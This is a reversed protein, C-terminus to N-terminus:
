PTSFLYFRQPFNTATADIITFPSVTISGNSLLLWTSAIPGLAVNTSAWLKYGTGMAGTATLSVNGDPLMWIGGPPFNPPTTSPGSAVWIRGDTALTNTFTYGDPYVINAFDSVAYNTAAFLQFSDGARLASGGVNTVVLTGGYTLTNVGAVLDSTLVPGNRGVEMVVTGQLALDSHITLTGVSAGPALTGDPTITVPGAISGTGALTGGYITVPHTPSTFIGNLVLTGNSVVTPGGMPSSATLTWAGAGTKVLAMNGSLSGRVEGDAAGQLALWRPASAATTVGKTLVLRGSDSQLSIVNGGTTLTPDVPPNLVNTGSVNLYHPPFSAPYNRSYFALANNLTIGGTLEVHSLDFQAGGVTITGAGLAGSNLPRAIVAGRVTVNGAGTIENTVVFADSRYFTLTGNNIIPSPTNGLSGVTGGDGINLTGGSITTTGSYINDGSLTLTGAGAKTLIGTHSPANELAQAITVDKGSGVDLTAGNATLYAATMNSIYTTSAAAPHLTGGDFTITATSGSGRVTPLAPLTVEATGGITITATDGIGASLATFSNNTFTGGTLTLTAKGGSNANASGMALTNVVASGGTQQFLGTTNNAASDRRAIILAGNTLNLNGTGSLNFVGSCGANVGLIVGRNGSGFGTISGGSMNYVGINKIDSTVIGVSGVLIASGGTFSLDGGTHNVIGNTGVGATGASVTFSSAGLAFSGQQLNLTALAADTGVTIPGSGVTRNGSLTLTGNSVTTAGSYINAGSLTLTGEGVKTLGGTNALVGALTLTAGSAVGVTGASSLSLNNTLLSSVSNSLTGGSLTVPGSGLASNNNAELTGAGITTGGGYTNANAISLTGAGSKALVGTGAIAGAGSLRYPTTENNFAMGGPSVTLNLTIDPNGALTDDFLVATGSAYNAATATAIWQWNTTTSDWAGSTAGTWKLSDTVVLDISTASYQLTSGPPKSGLVFGSNVTPGSYTLLSYTGAPVYGSSRVNLTTTGSNAFAGTVSVTTVSGGNLTLNITQTDGGTAGLTLSGLTLYGVGALDGAALTGGSHVTVAGNVAGNGALTAGPQVVAGGALSGSVRLTGNSITTLGTYTNYGSLTLTGVGAKTLVGTQSPANEFPQAIAIDKGGAVNFNAGNATLYAHNLGSLYAASAAAPRLTGGDFTLTATSGVGRATPFAPLTVDATGGILITATDNTGVSLKTFSSNTFTGGTLMLKARGGSNLNRSGLTLTGVTATGGTQYFAGSSNDAASDSRALLLAGSSLNLNGTGSLNFIGSCNANVGLIVGRTASAFGTFFSGGSLNYVGVAGAGTGNGVLMGNGGTFSLAGASHNVIANTGAASTGVIFNNAGIALSGAQLNLTALNADAGVTIAGSAATRNGSLTLTGARVTTAGSYTNAGSLTLTGAGTKTVAVSAAGGNTLVDSIVINGAGGITLTKAGATGGTGGGIRGALTLTNASDNTLTYSAATATGLTIAANFLQHNAVTGTMQIAGSDNLTLTQSGAAGSGITYAAVSATNFLNTKITVGSGLDITTNGNGAGNFIASNGTDPVGGTWNGATAWVANSAGTWTGDAALATGTLVNTANGGNSTFLLTTTFSGPQTPSFTVQVAGTQGVSLTFPSGSVVSFPPTSTATGILPLGGENVVQFTQTSSQGVLLTGFSWNTPSVVLLPLLNTVVMYGPKSNTSNGLPGSAVLTVTNTGAIAYAHSITTGITNTTPAGDGFNWSRNTITGTSTDTFTVTLPVSGSTPSASFLAAPVVAAQGTLLVNTSGGNASSFLLNTSFAGEGTPALRVVVNTTGFGAVTFNSGSVVSFPPSASATGGTVTAGGKNTVVFTRDVNSGVAVWGFDWNTPTVALQGQTQGVGSVAVNTNGGSSTFAVNANFTGGGPPTFRVVVNTWGFGALSFTNGSMIIFPTGVAAEGNSLPAGGRNTVVFTREAYSGFLVTGFNTTAPSVGLQPPAHMERVVVTFWNTASLPPVGDDLVRTIFANTGPGQHELPLWTIVGDPSIAANTPAVLLTYSLRNAPLDADTATNTVTLPTLEDMALDPPEPLVPAQNVERVFVSFSQTATLSPVGNDTVWISIRNTSPGQAERIPWLFVGDTPHISAGAPSEAGLGFTFNTVMVDPDTVINTLTLTTGEDVLYDPVPALAPPHNVAAINLAFSSSATNTGDSVSLTILTTGFQNTAPLIVVTRNSGSGGFVFNGGPVLNTNASSGAVSLAAAPTEADSITFPIAATPTDGTGFQDPVASISPPANYDRYTVISVGGPYPSKTDDGSEILLRRTTRGQPANAFDISVIVIQAAGPAVNFPAQPAWSIWPANTEAAISILALPVSGDNYIQFTFNSSALSEIGRGLNLRPKTIAAKTDTILDGTATLKSRVEAPTLYRGLMTKAASQLCAVAGAGYPCAASTGGFSSTYDSGSYGGLGAIDTTYAQNGPALIDLFSAINCYSTVKDPATFDAGYYGSTCGPDPIKPACSAASLCPYYNGFAADYVAGVSIVNGICAPWSLAGCYGDNGSSALITIGAAVANSAARTMALNAGDCIASYDGSGFSTSIVMLPCEPNDNKHTVCWDWAAVMADSTATNTGNASIKLAYLRAAPAVGGIYDGVTGMDGAAIGACATGHAEGVPMPDADLNGFDYGGIVKANPFAGGGLRPHRYDIGTDCIAIAVGNGKYASRYAMGNILPLGQALHAQLVVVPEILAVQAHHRLKELGKRTLDCSFAAQNELRYRLSYDNQDLEQFMGEQHSKIADRLTKRAAANGWDKPQAMQVTPVLNVLVRVHEKGGKFEAEIRSADFDRRALMAPDLSGTAPVILSDGMATSDALGALASGGGSHNTFSLSLPAVRIDPYGLVLITKTYENDTENSEGVTGQTDAVLRLTHPGPSLNGLSWDQQSRTENANVPTVIDWTQDLGGDLYLGVKFANTIKAAGQNAIAWSVYYYDRGSMTRSDHTSGPATTVVIKDSWGPPQAPALNVAGLVTITRTYENDTENSEAVLNQPDAKLTLTHTGPSLSGIAYDNRYSYYGWKLGSSSWVKRLIGDVYLEYDFTTGIGDLGDNSVAWDVYLLNTAYLSASDTTTNTTTSVVIKDSWGSPLYPRLNPWGVRTVVVTKVYSNDTEDSEPLMGTVDMELRLKNTGSVLTGLKYDKVWTYGGAEVGAVQYWKQVFVDNVYLSFYFPLGAAVSGNNGAAWNLFVDNTSYLPSTDTTANTVTSLVIEDSWGPPQYATLNPLGPTFAAHLTLTGAGDDYGGALIFCPEEPLVSIVVRSSYLNTHDDNCFIPVLANCSGSYLALATNYTSGDTDVVLQGNTPATFRYWVGKSFSPNCTPIPDGDSSASLTSQVNTYPTANIVLANNCLDNAVPLAGPTFQAHFALNGSKGAWGGGLVYYSRGATVVQAMRSNNSLNTTWTTIDDNCGELVLNNCGGTYIAIATDFDSGATDLQLLGNTTATWQYWVGKGFTSVCSPTPDGPSTAAVTAQTNAYPFSAMVLANGCFDNVPAPTFAGRLVLTGSVGNSGGALIYYTTGTVVDNTLRSTNLVGDQDNCALYTLNGCAGSYLGLVTDFSSGATDMVLQGNSPPTFQYWVGKGLSRGCLSTPEGTSTAAATSQTNTYPWANIALAGYCFDNPVSTPSAWAAHVTLNGAAGDFGGALIYYTTGANVVNTLRSTTLGGDDDNCNLYTPNGCTGSYLGLITDFGSGSTDIVLLGNTSPTFQYWVGKGFNYGCPAVPDGNTTATTTSQVNVYPLSAIVFANSCYDNFDNDQLTLVANSRAGLVAGGAPNRLALLVTEDGEILSDDILPITFTKTGSDNNAWTLTNTTATYDAGATAIGDSTSCTVSAIGRAGAMRVVSLTAAGAGESVSFAPSGFQLVGASPCSELVVDDVNFNALGGGAGVYEFLIAHPGGDAFASLDLSRTAYSAEAVAPETYTAVVTGDVKIRLVDTYPASVAGVWLGFRLTAAANPIIVTQGLTATEPAYSGGFWAWRTGSRPGAAGGGDGCSGDCLPTGFWTSTQIAWGAWPSGSEFDSDTVQNLCNSSPPTVTIALRALNNSLAPDLQGAAVTVTNTVRGATTPTLVLGAAAVGNSPLTTVNWTFLNSNVTWVGQTCTVSAFVLSGPLVDSVVVNTAMRPGRNTLLLTCTLNSWAAVPNPAATMGVALDAVPMVTVLFERVMTDQGAMATGGSDQVVVSLTATGTQNAVPTLVLVGNSAPNAYTVVPDPILGPNSSTASVGLSQLENTSGSSIGTLNITKPGSNEAVTLDGLPDLTPQINGANVRVSFTKTDSLPPNGDDRVTVTVLHDGFDNTAVLRSANTMWGSFAVTLVNDDGPVGNQNDPDSYVPNIQITGPARVTVGPLYQLVPAHNRNAVTVTWQRKVESVGSRVSFEVQYDKSLTTQGSSESTTVFQWSTNTSKTVGDQKWSYTMPDHNANTATASFQVSEEELLFVSNGAPSYSAIEPPAPPRSSALIPNSGGLYEQLNTFLDGDPDGAAGHIGVASNPNLGYAVEWGDPLGDHDSDADNPDTHTVTLEIEDALKDGDSDVFEDYGIDQTKTLGAGPGAAPRPESDGDEQVYSLNEGADILPSTSTLHFNTQGVNYFGSTTSLSKADLGSNTQWVSLSLYSMNSWVGVRAVYTAYLNNHDSVTGAQSTASLYLAHANWDFAECINNKITCNTSGYGLYVQGCALNYSYYNNLMQAYNRYLTNNAVICGPSSQVSVGYGIALGPQESVSPDWARGCNNFVLNNKAISNTCFQLMIGGGNGTGLVASSNTGALGGQGQNNYAENKFVTLTSEGQGYIGVGWGLGGNRQESYGGTGANGYVINREITSNTTQLLAIGFAQGKSSFGATSTVGYAFNSYCVNDNVQNEAALVTNTVTQIFIGAGEGYGPQATPSPAAGGSGGNAYCRNSQVLNGFTSTLIIGFGRGAGGNGSGTGAGGAAGNHHCLNNEILHAGEGGVEIGAGSAEQGAAGAVGNSYCQNNRIICAFCNLAYIGQRGGTLQLNQVVIGEAGNIYICAISSGPNQHALIAAGGNTPGTFTVPKFFYGDDAATIAIDSTIPYNGTDIFVMDGPQLPYHDIIDQVRNVPNTPSMGTVTAGNWPQGAATCYNDGATSADNVYYKGGNLVKFIATVPMVFDADGPRVFRLQVSDSVLWGTNWVYSQSAGPVTAISTWSVGDVSYQLTVNTNTGWNGQWKWTITVADKLTETGRPALPIISAKGGGATGTYRSAVLRNLGDYEYAFRVTGNHTINTLNGRADYGYATVVGTPETVQSIQGKANYAYLTTRRAGVDGKTTSTLQNKANYGNAVTGARTTLNTLNDRDDYAYDVQHGLANRTRTLRSFADYTSDTQYGRADRTWIRNGNADYGFTNTHANADMVVTLNGNTDYQYSTFDVAYTSMLFRNLIHEADFSNFFNTNNPSHFTYTPNNNIDVLRIDARGNPNLTALRTGRYDYYYQKIRGDAQRETTVDRTSNYTRETTNSRADTIRTPDSKENFETTQTLSEPGTVQTRRTTLNFDKTIPTAVGPQTTAQARGYVDYAQTEVANGNEDRVETLLHDANYDYRLWRGNPADYQASVLNGNVDYGYAISHGAPLSASAVRNQGDYNFTIGRGGPQGISALRSSGDYGYVIRNGNLDQSQLLRGNMDFDHLEGNAMRMVMRTKSDTFLKGPVDKTEYAYTLIQANTAFRSMIHLVDNTRYMNYIGAPALKFSSQSARDDLYIEGYGVQNTGCLNFPVLGGKPELAYPQVQWGYGFMTKGVNFSDFHRGLVLPITGQVELSVDTDSHSFGGDKETRDVSFATVNYNTGSQNFNWALNTEAARNSKAATALASPNGNTGFELDKCYNVGGQVTLTYTTRGSTQTGTVSTQPTHTPTVVPTPEYSELFSKDMPIDNDQIWKVIGVVAALQKLEKFIYRVGGTADYTFQEAAIADYNETFWRCFYTDGPMSELVGDSAWDVQTSLQMEARTLTMSKGDGSPEVEITKPEFWKRGKASRSSNGDLQFTRPIIPMYSYGFGSVASTRAAGTINDKGLDLCKMVRDAEFMVWGFGTGSTLDNVVEVGNTDMVKPGFRTTYCLQNGWEPAAVVPDEISVVPMSGRNAARFAVALDDLNLPPLATAGGEAKGYLLIQGTAKDYTAGAIKNIDLLVSASKNLKIGGAKGSGGWGARDLERMKNSLDRDRAWRDRQEAERKKSQLDRENRERLAREDYKRRDIERQRDSAERHAQMMAQEQAARNGMPSENFPFDMTRNWRTVDYMLSTATYGGRGPPPAYGQTYGALNVASVVLLFIATAVIWAAGTGFLMEGSPDSQNIPDNAAFTYPAFSGAREQQGRVPDRTLFRGVTPDMYRARLFILGTEEEQAEGDFQYDNAIGEAESTVTGFADYEYSNVVVANTNVLRRVSGNIADHLYYNRVASTSVEQTILENGWDYARQPLGVADTEALVQVYKRNPDNVFNKRIGNVIKTVREGSGNYVYEVNNTGSLYRVLRNETDYVYDILRRPSYRYQQILNGTADYTFAENDVGNLKTSLLRSDNDYLYTTRNTVGAIVEVMNTRNGFSDCAYSVLRGDPYTVTALRDLVDYTYSTTRVINGPTTEIMSTRNGIANLTYGYQCILGAGATRHVVNTQRGDADYDYDTYAGNPLTRRTTNGAADYAYSTTDGTFVNRVTAIRNNEDFTYHIYTYTGLFYLAVYNGYQLDTINGANDYYNYVFGYDPYEIGALRDFLDYSYRTTGTADTMQTRNGNQDYGFTVDPSPGGQYDISALRNMADYTYLTVVGNGDVRRILNGNGDYANTVAVSTLTGQPVPTDAYARQPFIPQWFFLWALLV